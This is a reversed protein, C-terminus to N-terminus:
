RGDQECLVMLVMCTGLVDVNTKVEDTPNHLVLLDFYDIARGFIHHCVREGFRMGARLDLVKCVCESEQLISPSHSACCDTSREAM